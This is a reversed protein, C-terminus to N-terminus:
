VEREERETWSSVLGPAVSGFFPDREPVPIGDVKDTIGEPRNDTIKILDPEV